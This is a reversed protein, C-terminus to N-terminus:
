IAGSPASFSRRAVFAVGPAMRTFAPIVRGSNDWSWKSCTRSRMWSSPAASAPNKLREDGDRRRIPEAFTM